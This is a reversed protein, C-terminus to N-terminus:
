ALADQTELVAAVPAMGELPEAGRGRDADNLVGAAGKPAPYPRATATLAVGVGAILAAGFAM